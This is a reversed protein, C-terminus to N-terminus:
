AHWRLPMMKFTWSLEQNESCKAKCEATFTWLFRSYSKIKIAYLDDQILCFHKGQPDLQSPEFGSPGGQVKITSKTSKKPKIISLVTIMFIVHALTITKMQWEGCFFTWFIRSFNLSMANWMKENLCLSWDSFIGNPMYMIKVPM